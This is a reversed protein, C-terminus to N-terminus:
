LPEFRSLASSTRGSADTFPIGYNVGVMWGARRVITDSARYPVAGSPRRAKGEKEKEKEKEKEEERAREKESAEKMERMLQKECGSMKLFLITRWTPGPAPSQSPRRWPHRDKPSARFNGSSSPRDGLSSRFAWTRQGVGGSILLPVIRGGLARQPQFGDGLGAFADQGGMKDGLQLCLLVLRGDQEEEKTADDRGVMPTLGQDSVPQM